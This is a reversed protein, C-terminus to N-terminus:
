RSTVGREQNRQGNEEGASRQTAAAAHTTTTLAATRMFLRGAWFCVGPRVDSAIVSESSLVGVVDVVGCDGAASRLNRSSNCSCRSDDVKAFLREAGGRECGSSCFSRSIM